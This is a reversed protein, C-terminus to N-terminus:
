LVLSLTFLVSDGAEIGESRRVSAKTPLLYTGSKSDPFISTLWKTNGIQAEVRLSGWGRKKHAYEANIEMSEKKPVTLFYWNGKEGPYLWLKATITFHPTKQSRKKM